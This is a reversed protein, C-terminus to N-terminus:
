SSVASTFQGDGNHSLSFSVLAVCSTGGHCQFMVPIGSVVSFHPGVPGRWSAQLEGLVNASAILLQLPMMEVFASSLGLWHIDNTM